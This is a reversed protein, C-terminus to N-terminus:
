CTSFSKIRFTGQVFYTKMKFNFGQYYLKVLNKRYNATIHLRSLQLKALLPDVLFSASIRRSWIINSLLVTLVVSLPNLFPLIHISWFFLMNCFFIKFLLRYFGYCYRFPLCVSLSAIISSHSFFIHYFYVMFWFYKTFLMLHKTTLAYRKSDLIM